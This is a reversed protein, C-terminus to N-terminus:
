QLSSRDNSCYNKFCKQQQHFQALRQAQAFFSPISIIIFDEPTSNHLNQNEIKGIPTPTLFGTSNFAVYERLISCNNIFHLDTNLLSTQMQIPTLPDTIDWVQTGNTPM